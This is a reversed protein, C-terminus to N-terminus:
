ECRSGRLRRQFGDPRRSSSQTKTDKKEISQSSSDSAAGSLWKRTLDYIIVGVALPAFIALVSIVKNRASPTGSATVITPLSNKKEQLSRSEPM